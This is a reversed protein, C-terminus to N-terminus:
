VSVEPDPMPWETDDKCKALAAKFEANGEKSGRQAKNWEAGAEAPASKEGWTGVGDGKGKKKEPM